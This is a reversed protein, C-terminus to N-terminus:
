DEEQDTHALEDTIDVTELDDTAELVFDDDSGAMSLTVAGQRAMELVALFTTIIFTKSRNKVMAAFSMRSERLLIERVFTQQDEISYAEGEIDHAVEEPAETLIRRLASVLDFLSASEVIPTTALRLSEDASAAGRTFLESRREFQESLSSAAEKYRVYELLREVLEARPDIPEGEEDLEPSPLLMRAKINILVAAMYLFDGVGDLDIQELIRVYELFEDAIAAVPIDYIDLEDRQIFFLLLDLPGEFQDLRVRYTM